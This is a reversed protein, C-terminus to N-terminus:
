ELWELLLVLEMTMVLLMIIVIKNDTNNLSIIMNLADDDGSVHVSKNMDVM